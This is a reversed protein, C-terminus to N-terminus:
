TSDAVYSDSHGPLEQAFRLVTWRIARLFIVAKARTGSRAARV